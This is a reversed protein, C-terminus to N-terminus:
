ESDGDEGIMQELEDYQILPMNEYIDYYFDKVWINNTGMRGEIIQRNYESIKDAMLIYNNKDTQLANMYTDYTVQLKAKEVSTCYSNRHIVVICFVLIISVCFGIAFFLLIGGIVDSDIRVKMLMFICIAAMIVLIILILM